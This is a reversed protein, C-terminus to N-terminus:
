NEGDAFWKCITSQNLKIDFVSYIREAIQRYTLGEEQWQLLLARWDEYRGAYEENRKIAATLRRQNHTPRKRELLM